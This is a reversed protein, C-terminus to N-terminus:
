VSLVLGSELFPRERCFMGPFLYVFCLSCFRSRFEWSSLGCVVQLLLGKRVSFHDSRMGCSKDGKQGQHFLGKQVSSLSSLLCCISELQLLSLFSDRCSERFFFNSVGPSPHPVIAATKCGDQLASRFLASHAEVWSCTLVQFTQYFISFGLITGGHWGLDILFPCPM